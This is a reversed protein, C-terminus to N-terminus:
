NLHNKTFRPGVCEWEVGGVWIWEWESGSVEMWEWESWSIKLRSGDIKVTKVGGKTMNLGSRSLKRGIRGIYQREWGNGTRKWINVSLGVWRRGIWGMNLRQTKLAETSYKKTRKHAKTNWTGMCGYFKYRHFNSDM